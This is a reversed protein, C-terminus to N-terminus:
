FEIYRFLVHSLRMAHRQINEASGLLLDYSLGTTPDIIDVGRSNLQLHPHSVALDQKVMSDVYRGKAQASWRREVYGAIDGRGERRLSSLTRRQRRTPTFSFEGAHRRALDQIHDGLADSAPLVSTDRTPINWRSGLHSVQTNGARHRVLVGGRRADRLRVSGRQWYNPDELRKRREWDVIRDLLRKLGRRIRAQGEIGKLRVLAQTIEIRAKQAAITPYAGAAMSELFALDIEDILGKDILWNAAAREVSGFIWLVNAGMNCALACGNRIENYMGVVTYDLLANGTERDVTEFWDGPGVKAKVIGAEGLPDVTNYGSYGLGQFLNHSDVYGLPDPQVFSQLTPDHWRARYHYLGLDHHWTRGQFATTLGYESTARRPTDLPARYAIFAIDDSAALHTVRIPWLSGSPEDPDPGTDVLHCAHITYSSGLQYVSGVDQSRPEWRWLTETVETLEGDAGAWDVELATSADVGPAMEVPEDFVLYIGDAGDLVALLQPPSIDFLVQEAGGGSIELTQEFALMQNGSRDRVGEIHLVITGTPDSPLGSLELTRQDSRYTGTLVSSAGGNLEFSASVDDLGDHDLPEHFLVQLRDDASLAVRVVDPATEDRGWYQPTGDPRYTIREAIQGSDDTLLHVSGVLDTVPWLTEDVVGDADLDVEEAVLDDIWRGWHHRRELQMGVGGPAKVYEAVVQAGDPVYVRAVEDPRGPETVKAVLRGFPDVLLRNEVSGHEVAVLRDMWDHTYRWDELLTGDDARVERRELPGNESWTLTTSPMAGPQHRESFGTPSVDVEGGREHRVLQRLEDAANVQQHQRLQLPSVPLEDGLIAQLEADVRDVAAHDFSQGDIGDHGTELHGVEDYRVRTVLSELDESTIARRLAGVTWDLDLVHLPDAIVGTDDPVALLGTLVQAPDGAENYALTTALGNPRSLSQLREGSYSAEWLLTGGDTDALSVPEDARTHLGTLRSMADFTRQVYTGGPLGLLAARNALDMQREVTYAGLDDFEGLFALTESLQNGTSDWTATVEVVDNSASRVLGLPDLDFSLTQASGAGPPRVEIAELLGNPDYQYDVETGDPRTVLDVQGDDEYSTEEVSDDPYTVSALRGIEDYEYVTADAGELQHRVVNGLEDLQRTIRAGDPRIETVTKGTTAGDAVTDYEFLTVRDVVAESGDRPDFVSDTRTVSTTRGLEDYLTTTVRGGPRTVQHVRGETDYTVDVRESWQDQPGVQTRAKVKGGPYYETEVKSGDPLLRQSERGREDYLLETTLGLGEPDVTITHLKENPYYSWATTLDVASEPDPIPEGDANQLPFRKLDRRTMKGESDYSYVEWAWLQQEDGDGLVVRREAVRGDPTLALAEKPDGLVPEGSAVRNCVHYLGGEIEVRAWRGVVLCASM